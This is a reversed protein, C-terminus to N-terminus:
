LVFPESTSVIYDAYELSSLVHNTLGLKEFNQRFSWRIFALAVTFFSPSAHSVQRVGRSFEFEPGDNEGISVMAKTDIYLCLVHRVTNPSLFM